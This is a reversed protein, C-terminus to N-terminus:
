RRICLVTKSFPNSLSKLEQLLQEELSHDEYLRCGDIDKGKAVQIITCGKLRYKAMTALSNGADDNDPILILRRGFRRLIQTVYPTLNSGLLALAQFGQSRLYLCCVIGEVVYVPKNSNYYEEIKEMGYVSAQKAVYGSNRSDLYKPVGLEKSFKEWGCFGMVDKHVDFVPYVVRGLYTIYKKFKVMGLSDQLMWDPLESITTDEPIFFAKCDEIIEMSLQRDDRLAVEMAMQHYEKSRFFDVVRNLDKRVDEISYHEEYIEGYFEDYFDM